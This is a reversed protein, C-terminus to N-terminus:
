KADRGEAFAMPWRNAAHNITTRRTNREGLRINLRIEIAPARALRAVRRLALLWIRDLDKGADKDLLRAAFLNGGARRDTQEDIVDIGTRFIIRIDLIFVSWAMGVISIIYFVAQAIIAAAAALRRALGRHPDGGTRDCALDNGSEFHAACQHLHSRMADIARAPIPILDVAIRKKTRVGFSCRHKAIIEVAQALTSGRNARNNFNDGVAHGGSQARRDVAFQVAVEGAGQHADIGYLTHLDACAKACGFKGALLIAIFHAHAVIALRSKEGVIGAADKAANGGPLRHHSTERDLRCGRNKNRSAGDITISVLCIDRRRAPVIWADANARHRDSFRHHGAHDRVMVQALAPLHTFRGAPWEGRRRSSRSLLLPMLLACWRMWAAIAAKARPSSMMTASSSSRSFSPSRNTAAVKHVGSFIANMM